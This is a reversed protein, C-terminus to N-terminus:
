KNDITCSTTEVIICEGIIIEFGADQALNVAEEYESGPQFWIKDLDLEVCDQVVKLANKEGVVLVVVDPREDLSILDPYCKVGLIEEYNPNVPIVQYGKKKLDVFVKYGYKEQNQTAGIVAYIFQPDILKQLEKEEM